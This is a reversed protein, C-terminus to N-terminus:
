AGYKAFVANVEEDTAFEGRDAEALAETVEQIQWAQTDLYSSLAEVTVFSKTRSTAKALDNLQDFVNVPVRVNITRTQPATTRTPQALAPM